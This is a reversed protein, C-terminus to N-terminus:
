QGIKRKAEEIPMDYFRDGYKVTPSPLPMKPTRRGKARASNYAVEEADYHEQRIIQELSRLERGTLEDTLEDWNNPFTLVPLASPREDGCVFVELLYDYLEPAWHRNKGKLLEARLCFRGLLPAASFEDGSPMASSGSGVLRITHVMTIDDKITACASWEGLGSPPSPSDWTRREEITMM